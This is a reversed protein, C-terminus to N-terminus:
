SSLNVSDWSGEWSCPRGLTWRVEGDELVFLKSMPLENNYKEPYGGGHGCVTSHDHAYQTPTYTGDADKVFDIRAGDRDYWHHAKMFNQVTKDNIKGRNYMAEHYLTWFRSITGPGPKPEDKLTEHTALPVNEMENNENYSQTCYQHNTGVIFGKEGMDGPKRIAYRRATTEVVCAKGPGAILYNKGGDRLMTKRGTRRRYEDSAVTIRKVAEEMTDSRAIMDVLAYRNPVGFDDPDSTKAGGMHLVAVGKDNFMANFSIMGATAITWYTHGHPPTAAYAASYLSIGYGHQVNHSVYTKGTETAEPLVAMGSCDHYPEPETSQFKGAREHAAADPHILSISPFCNIFLVKEYDSLKDAYSSKKLFKAAGEAIGQTFDILNPDLAYAQKEYLKCDDMIHKLDLKNGTRDGKTITRNLLFDHVYRINDGIRDGYQFGIDSWSGTLHGLWISHRAVKPFGEPVKFKEAWTQGVSDNHIEM